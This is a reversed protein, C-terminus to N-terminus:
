KKGKTAVKLDAAAERSAAAEGAKAADMTEIPTGDKALKNVPKGLDESSAQPPPEVGERFNTAQDTAILGGARQLDAFNGVISPERPAMRSEHAERTTADMGGQMKNGDPATLRGCTSCQNSNLLPQTDTGGCWACAFAM